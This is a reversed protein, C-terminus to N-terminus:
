NAVVAEALHLTRVRSSTRRRPHKQPGDRPRDAPNRGDQLATEYKAFSDEPVEVAPLVIVGRGIPM